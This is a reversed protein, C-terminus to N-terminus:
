KTFPLARQRSVGLQMAREADAKAEATRYRMKNLMARYLYLEGELPNIRLGEAIDQSADNLNDAMIRCFARAAYYEAQPNLGIVKSLPTIAEAYRGSATYLSGAAINTLINEPAIVRLTDLDAQAAAWDSSKIAATIRMARARVNTSDILLISNCDAVAEDTRGMAQLVTARNSLVQVSRPAINCADTLTELAISDHGQYFQLMGINSLLLLNAPNAPESKIARRLEAEALQWDGAAIASDATAMMRVYPTNEDVTQARCVAPLLLLAALILTKPTM